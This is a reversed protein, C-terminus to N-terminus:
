HLSALFALRPTPIPGLAKGLAVIMEVFIRDFLRNLFLGRRRVQSKQAYTHGSRNWEVVRASARTLAGGSHRV